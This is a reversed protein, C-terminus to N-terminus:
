DELMYSQYIVLYEQHWEDGLKKESEKDGSLNDQNSVSNLSSQLAAELNLTPQNNDLQIVKAKPEKNTIEEYSM